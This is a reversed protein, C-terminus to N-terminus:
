EGDILFPHNGTCKITEGDELEIEYM